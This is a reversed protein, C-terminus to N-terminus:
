IEEKGKTPFIHIIRDPSSRGAIIKDHQRIRWFYIPTDDPLTKLIDVSKRLLAIMTNEPDYLLCGRLRGEMIKLLHVKAYFPNDFRDQDDKCRDIELVSVDDFGAENLQKILTPEFDHM